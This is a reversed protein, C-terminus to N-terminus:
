SSWWREIAAAPTWGGVTVRPAHERALRLATALDFRHEAKWEDSRESPLSEYDWEGATSLCWISRKLVAWRGESRWAVTIAWSEWDPVDCPVACVTYGTAKCWVEPVPASM